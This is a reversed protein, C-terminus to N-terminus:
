PAVGMDEGPGVPRVNERSYCGYMAGVFGGDGAFETIGFLLVVPVLIDGFALRLWPSVM